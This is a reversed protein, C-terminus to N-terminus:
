MPQSETPSLLGSREAARYKEELAKTKKRSSGESLSDVEESKANVRELYDLWQTHLSEVVSADKLNLEVAFKVTAKMDDSGYIQIFKLDHVIGLDLHWEAIEVDEMTCEPNNLFATPKKTLSFKLTSSITGLTPDAVWVRRGPRSSFM